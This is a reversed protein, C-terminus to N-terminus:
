RTMLDIRGPPDGTAVLQLDQRMPWLRACAAHLIDFGKMYESIVGPQFITKVPRHPGEAAEGPWPWPFRAADMGWPVVVVRQAYPSVMAGTLRNLVLVAEAEALVRRLKDQYDPTGVGALHREVQHLWGSKKARM